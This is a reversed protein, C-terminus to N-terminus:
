LPGLRIIILATLLSVSLWPLPGLHFTVQLNIESNLKDWVVSFVVNWTGYLTTHHLSDLGLWFESSNPKGFGRQYDIWERDRFAEAVRLDRNQILVMHQWDTFVFKFIIKM